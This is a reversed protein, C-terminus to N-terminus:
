AADSPDKASNRPVLSVVRARQRAGTLASGAPHARMAAELGELVNAHSSRALRWRREARKRAASM